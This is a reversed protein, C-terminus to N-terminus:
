RVQVVVKGKPANQEFYNFAEKVNAVTFTKDILPKIKGSDILTALRTLQQSNAQTMQQIATVGSDTAKSEDVNGALAVLVGGKKLIGYSGDIVAPTTVLVADYDKIITTFDQTKYNIVEDAGFSRVIEMETEDVTTAVYAGHHKALQIAISGIGGAGGHILIKQGSQINMHEEVAQVASAGVLPFAAADTMTLSAPKKAVKEAPATTFEALSGSGGMLAGAQGYVEDGVAIGEVDSGVERVIGSFDGGLVAPFTLPMMQQLYGARIMSDIRNLSAAHVEVLVKGAGAKPTPQNDSIKIAESDGYHNIVAAKM